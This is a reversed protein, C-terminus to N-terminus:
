RPVLYTGALRDQLGREPDRAASWVMWGLVAPLALFALAGIPLRWYRALDAPAVVEAETFAFLGLCAVVFPLWAIFARMFARARSAEAGSGMVVGFGLMRLLLGSRFVPASLLGVSLAPVLSVLPLGIAALLLVFPLPDNEHRNELYRTVVNRSENLEELSPSSHAAIAREATPEWNHSMFPQQWSQPDIQMERFREAVHIEMIRVVHEVNLGALGIAELEQRQEREESERLRDLEEIQGIVTALELGVRNQTGSRHLFFLGPLFYIWGVAPLSACAVLHVMRRRFSISSDSALMADMITSLQEFTDLTQQSLRQLATRASLPLPVNPLKADGLRNSGPNGCLSANAVLSLFHQAAQMEAAPQSADPKASRSESSTSWDVLKARGDDTVWVRDLALEPLLGDESALKLEDALDHLWHRVHSWPQPEAIRTTLPEGGLAEYADWCEDSTRRGTLWRLRGPRSLDRRRPSLPASGSPLIHIWVLRRLRGDYALIVSDTLNKLRQFPGIRDTAPELTPAERVMRVPSRVGIASKMAVRTRSLLDHISAFGNRRRVTLFLVLMQLYWNAQMGVGFNMSDLTGSFNLLVPPHASGSLQLNFFDIRIAATFIAARGLISLVSPRRGERDVIQLGCIAKGISSGWYWELISFYSATVVLYVVQYLVVGTGFRSVGGWDAATSDHELGLLDLYVAIPALLFGLVVWDIAGAALRLGVSAPEPVRSSYPELGGALEAYTSTRDDPNKALCRMILRSLQKPVDPNRKSVEVPLDQAVKTALRLVNTDEFPPHGTLLYYLTAGVAYIDSRVDLDDARLQEPSAFAPTGLVTGTMTLETLDHEARALTSISLGFDGVKVSGESDIFCNSPKMDRHLVGQAAAAELGDILQLVTDVAETSSLPGFGQVKDKLTGGAALEMTIVPIGEIEETGYVYVTHPHNISAALRGERLFRARDSPDDLGHTLVKLALRRGSEDEAEYVEGMGGRGLLREIRYTGFTEGSSLLQGEVSRSASGPTATVTPQEDNPLEPTALGLTLLCNPCIGDASLGEVVEAGCRVCQSSESM